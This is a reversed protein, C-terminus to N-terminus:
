RSALAAAAAIGGAQPLGHLTELLAEADAGLRPVTLARFKDDIRRGQEAVDGTPVGVDVSKHLRRGDALRVEVDALTGPRDEGRVTVKRRLAVLDPRKANDDSYIEMASTDEGALAFAATHRLSFKTELGSAPEEIDCVSLHGNDVVMTVADIDDGDVTEEARLKQLADISSHTLYCAAHYKFLNERIHFGERPTALAKEPRFKTAQTAAFGQATELVEPNATFGRSALRAALLGNAAAKGAHLPKCMTGFMSKLGAAQTGAIGLAMATREADLGLLRACGAAAGFSGITATAHFGAQYHSRGVLRGIRCEVEYGAVFATVIVAGSAGTAVGLALVASAVPVTPHGHMQMNVDDFDLAHSAAGNILVADLLAARGSRGVLMAGDNAGGQLEEALIDVLEEGAGAVTVGYWDILCQIAVAVIEDPLDKFALDATLEAIKRTVHETDESPQRTETMSM